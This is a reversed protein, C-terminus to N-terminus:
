TSGPRRNQRERTPEQAHSSIKARISRRRVSANQTNRTRTEGVFKVMMMVYYAFRIIHFKIKVSYNHICSFFLVTAM